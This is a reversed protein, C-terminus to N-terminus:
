GEIVRRRAVDDRAWVACLERWALCRSSEVSKQLMGGRYAWLSDFVVPRGRRQLRLRLLYRMHASILIYQSLIQLTCVKCRSCWRGTNSGDIRSSGDISTLSEPIHPLLLRVLGDCYANSFVHVVKGIGEHPTHRSVSESRSLDWEDHWSQAYQPRAPHVVNRSCPPFNNMRSLSISLCPVHLCYSFAYGPREHAIRTAIAISNRLLISYVLHM